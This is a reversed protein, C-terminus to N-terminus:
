ADKKLSMIENTELWLFQDHALLLKKLPLSPGNCHLHMEM